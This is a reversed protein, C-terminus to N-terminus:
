IYDGIQDPNITVIFSGFSDIQESGFLINEYNLGSVDYTQNSFNHIILIAETEDEYTYTRVYGQIKNDNGNFLEFSQGYMLAMHDKRLEIMKQYTALLSNEDGLQDEVTALGENFGYEPLWTATYQNGWLLPSRRYEDYITGDYGDMTLGEFRTGKLGIEEGYYIIPSGPLTLLVRSALKLRELPYDSNVLSALRDQDHNRLFPTDVYDPNNEAFAEYSNQIRGALRSISSGNMANVIKNSAYFNFVSDSGQFYREYLDFTDEFVESVLFSNPNVSKIYANLQSIFVINSAISNNNIDKIMFHKAADLRFGTVGMDMYFDIIDHIEEVVADSELNLDVMGGVFSSYATHDATWLYYERYPSDMNYQADKYWPHQDSTHNIVLDMMIKIGHDKATDILTQFDDITGYDSEVGYYDTISYGHYSPGENVPMLWIATIGLNELYDINETVGKFDGIGDGDSDAFSRVFLEYYVDNKPNAAALEASNDKPKCAILIFSVMLVITLLHIKRKM